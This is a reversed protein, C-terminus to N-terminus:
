TVPLTTTTSPPAVAQSATRLPRRARVPDTVGPLVRDGDGGAHARLPLRHHQPQQQGADGVLHGQGATPSGTSGAPLTGDLTVLMTTPTPFSITVRPTGPAAGRAPGLDFVVRMYAAQSGYRLRVVQFGTDGAGFTQVPTAVPASTAAPASSQAPASQHPQPQATAAPRAAVPSSPRSTGHGILLAVVFILGIAAVGALLRNDPGAAGLRGVGQRARAMAGGAATRVAATVRGIRASVPVQDRAVARSHRGLPRPRRDTTAREHPMETDPYSSAAFANWGAAQRARRWNASRRGRDAHPASARSAREDGRLGAPAISRHQRARGACPGRGPRRAGPRTATGFSTVASGPLCRRDGVGLPRAQPTARQSPDAGWQHDPGVRRPRRRRPGAGPAGHNRRPRPEVPCGARLSGRGPHPATRRLPPAPATPQPAAPELPPAAIVEAPPLPTSASWSTVTPPTPDVPAPLDAEWSEPVGVGEDREPDPDAGGPRERAQRRSEVVSPGLARGGAAPRASRGDGPGPRHGRRHAAGSRSTTPDVAAGPQEHGEALSPPRGGAARAPRRRRPTETAPDIAIGVQELMLQASGPDISVRALQGVRAKEERLTAAGASCRSCGILHADVEARRQPALEDDIFTSLTLLSCKM